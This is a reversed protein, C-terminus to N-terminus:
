VCEFSLYNLSCNLTEILTVSQKRDFSIWNISQNSDVFTQYKLQLTIQITLVQCESWCINFQINWTRRIEILSSVKEVFFAHTCPASM